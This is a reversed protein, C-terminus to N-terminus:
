KWRKTSPFGDWIMVVDLLTPLNGNNQQRGVQAWGERGWWQYSCMSKICSQLFSTLCWICGNNIHEAMTAKVTIMVMVATAADGAIAAAVTM